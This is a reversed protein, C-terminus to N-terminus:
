GCPIRKVFNYNDTADLIVIQGPPVLNGDRDVTSEGDMRLSRPCEEVVGYPESAVVFQGPAVGVYLAQGSGRMALMLRTPSEAAVAGIAVSGDFERVTERFAEELPSGTDLRRSVLAPIVKADTTIEDAIRLGYREVIRQDTLREIREHLAAPLPASPCAEKGQKDRTTCRYYRYERAGRRTSPWTRSTASARVRGAMRSPLKPSHIAM